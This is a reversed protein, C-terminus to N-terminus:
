CVSRHIQKEMSPSMSAALWSVVAPELGPPTAAGM